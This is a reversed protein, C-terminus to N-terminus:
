VFEEIVRFYYLNYPTPLLVYALGKYNFRNYVSIVREAKKGGEEVYGELFGAIYEQMKRLSGMPKSSILGYTCTVCFVMVDWYMYSYDDTRVAQEGDIVYYGTKSKVFNQFKTDGLAFGHSHIVALLRGISRYERVGSSPSFVEGEVFERVVVKSIWDKIIVRPLDIINKMSDIFLVERSMRESPDVTYPYVKATVGATKVLLWKVLGAESTYNKVVYKRGNVVIIRSQSFMSNVIEVINPLKEM